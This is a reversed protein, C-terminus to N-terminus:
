CVYTFDLFIPCTFKIAFCFCLCLPSCVHPCWPLFLSYSSNSSQPQCIFVLTYLMSLGQSGPSGRHSLLLSDAQLALSALAAPEIGPHPRDGPPPFPLGSWYEQRSLGMFLPAKQAVTQLTVSLQVHSLM